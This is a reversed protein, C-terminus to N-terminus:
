LPTARRECKEGLFPAVFGKAFVCLCLIVGVGYEWFQPSMWPQFREGFDQRPEVILEGFILSLRPFFFGRDAPSMYKPYVWCLTGETFAFNPLAASLDWTSHMSSLGTLNTACINAIVVAGDDGSFM